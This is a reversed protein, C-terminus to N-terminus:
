KKAILGSKELYLLNLLICEESYDEMESVLVDMGMPHLSLSSLIKHFILSKDLPELGKLKKEIRQRYEIAIDDDIEIHLDQLNSRQVIREFRQGYIEDENWDTDCFLVQHVKEQIKQSAAKQIERSRKRAVM